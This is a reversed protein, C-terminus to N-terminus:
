SRASWQNTGVARTVVGAQHLLRSVMSQSVTFRDALRALSWGQKYLEVLELTQKTTLRTPPKWVGRSKLQASVTTRHIQFDRDLIHISCGRQYREVLQDVEPETLRRQRRVSRTPRAPLRDRGEGALLRQLRSTIDQKSFRGM